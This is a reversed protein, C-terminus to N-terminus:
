LMDMVDIRVSSKATDIGYYEEAMRFVEQDELVACGGKAKERAKKRIQECLENLNKQPDLLKKATDESRCIKTLHEEIGQALPGGIEMMEKTIHAIAKNIM